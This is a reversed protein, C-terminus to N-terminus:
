DDKGQEEIDKKLWVLNNIDGRTLGIDTLERNSLRNLHKITKRHRRWTMLYKWYRYPLTFITKLLKM